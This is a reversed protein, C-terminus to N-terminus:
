QQHITNRPNIRIFPAFAQTPRLLQAAKGQRFDYGLVSAPTAGGGGMLIYGKDGDPTFFIGQPIFIDDLVINSYDLFKTIVNIDSYFIDVRSKTLDFDFIGGGHNILYVENTGPRVAARVRYDSFGAIESVFGFDLADRVQLPFEPYDARCLLIIKNNTYDVTASYPIRGETYYPHNLYVSTFTPTSIDTYDLEFISDVGSKLFYLRDSGPLFGVDAHPIYLRTLVTLSPFDLLIISDLCNVLIATENFNLEVHCLDDTNLSAITDHTFYNEVWIKNDSPGVGSFVATAGDSTFELDYLFHGYSITDVVQGTLTSYILVTDRSVGTGAGPYFLHYENAEEKPQICDCAEECSIIFLLLALIPGVSVFFYIRKKM